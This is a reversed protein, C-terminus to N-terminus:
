GLPWRPYAPEASSPMMARNTLGIRDGVLVVFGALFGNPKAGMVLARKGM